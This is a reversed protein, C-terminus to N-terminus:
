VRCEPNQDYENINIFFAVLSVCSFYSGETKFIILYTTKSLLPCPKVIMQWMEGAPIPVGYDEVLRGFKQFERDKGGRAGM